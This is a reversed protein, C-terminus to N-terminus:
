ETWDILAPHHSICSYCLHMHMRVNTMFVIKKTGQLGEYLGKSSHGLLHGRTHGEGAYWFCYYCCYIMYSMGNGYRVDMKAWM